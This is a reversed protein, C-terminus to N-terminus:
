SLAEVGSRLLEIEHRVIAGFREALAVADPRSAVLAFARGRSDAADAGDNTAQLHRLWLAALESTPLDPWPGAYADSLAKQIATSASRILVMAKDWRGGELSQASARVEAVDDWPSRDGVGAFLFGVFAMASMLGERVAAISSGLRAIVDTGMEEDHALLGLVLHETGIYDHGLKAAEDVALRMAAVVQESPAVHRDGLDLDTGLVQEVHRRVADLDIGVSELAEADSILEYSSDPMALRAVERAIEATIGAGALAVPGVGSRGRELVGVVVDELQLESRELDLAARQAARLTEAAFATLPLAASSDTKTM